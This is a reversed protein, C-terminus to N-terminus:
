AFPIWFTPEGTTSMPLAITAGDQGLQGEHLKEGDADIRYALHVPSGDDREAVFFYELDDDASNTAAAAAMASAAASAATSAGASAAGSGEYSRGVEGMTSILTAGCSVKHGELAVGKGGITWSPDGEIITCNVHGQKPCTVADGILAVPKGFITTTSSASVVQGGHDTPDGLRIIRKM